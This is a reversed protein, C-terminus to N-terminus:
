LFESGATVRQWVRVRVERLVKCDAALCESECVGCAGGEIGNHKNCLQKLM